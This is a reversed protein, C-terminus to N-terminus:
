RGTRGSSICNAMRERLDKSDATARLFFSTSTRLQMHETFDATRVDEEDESDEEAYHLPQVNELRRYTSARQVM